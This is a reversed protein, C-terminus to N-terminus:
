KPPLFSVRFINLNAVLMVFILLILFQSCFLFLLYSGLSTKDYMLLINIFVVYYLSNHFDITPLVFFSIVIFFKGAHNFIIHLFKCSFTAFIFFCFYQLSIM